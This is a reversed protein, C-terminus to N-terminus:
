HRIDADKTEPLFLAGVILSLAAFFIPYWLGSYINGTAVVIAFAASPLFGGLWGVGIHYPFSMSTYRIRAPFFEALLAAMPGYVMASFTMLVFLWLLVMPINIEDPDAKAPYGAAALTEGAIKEWEARRARFETPSLGRGDFSPLRQEGVRLEAVAGPAAPATEYSIGARTLYSRTVDCSSTFTKSGLPDFLFSCEAPDAAVVAPSTAVARALDPNAAETLGKFIPFYTLAALLCAALILPKRGVKDSMWGFLIYLPSHILLAAAILLNATSGDVKLVRELFFLVYFQAAYWIVAQGAIAGFLAILILRLNKWNGFADKWPRSSAKGASKMRLYVPSEHLKLQIWMTIALLFISALFPIRWGWANFDDEGVATRTAFIVVLSLAMAFTATLQIWSTYSGRKGHPAHEAVYVAAGGYVGGVSLGQLMRLAVLIWAAAPGIQEYTPLLGVSFTALGMLSLTVVFTNKRGWLDGLFGFVLAGFPRVALGAAFTLLALTFATTPDVGSFFNRSMVVALSGYLFFDFWEFVTGVSSAAIVKFHERGVTEDTELTGATQDTM